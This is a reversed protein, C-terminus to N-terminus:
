FGPALNMQETQLLFHAAYKIWRNKMSASFFLRLHPLNSSNLECEGSVSVSDSTKVVTTKNNKLGDGSSQFHKSQCSLSFTM